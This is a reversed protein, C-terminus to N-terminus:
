VSHWRTYISLYMKTYIETLVSYMQFHKLCTTVVPSILVTHKVYENVELCFNQKM